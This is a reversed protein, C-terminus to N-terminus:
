QHWFIWSLCLYPKCQRITHALMITLQCVSSSCAIEAPVILLQYMLSTRNGSTQREMISKPFCKVKHCCWTENCLWQATDHCHPYEREIKKKKFTNPLLRYGFFPMRMQASFCSHFFKSWCSRLWMTLVICRM